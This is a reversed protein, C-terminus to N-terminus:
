VRGLMSLLVLVFYTRVTAFIHTFDREYMSTLVLVFFTRVDAFTRTCFMGKMSAQILVFFGVFYKTFSVTM